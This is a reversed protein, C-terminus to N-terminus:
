HGSLKARLDRALQPDKAGLRRLLSERFNEDAIELMALVQEFGDVKVSGPEPATAQSVNRRNRSELM